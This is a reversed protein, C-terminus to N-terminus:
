RTARMRLFCVIGVAGLAAFLAPHVTPLMMTLAWLRGGFSQWNEIKGVNEMLAQPVDPVGHNLITEGGKTAAVSLVTATTYEQAGVNKAPTDAVGYEGWIKWAKAFAEIRGSMGNPQVNSDASGTNIAKAVKRIDNADAWDNCKSQEWELAAFKLTLIPDDLTTSTPEIGLPRCYGEVAARGTTQIWGGGRFDYGDNSGVRNGMRGNYVKNGLVRPNKLYTRCEADSLHGFRSPWAKRLAGITRYNLNERLEKFGNAEWLVTAAFHCWRLETETIGKEALYDINAFLAETWAAPCNPAFTKWAERTIVIM